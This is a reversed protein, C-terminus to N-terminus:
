LSYAATNTTNYLTKSNIATPRELKNKTRFVIPIRNRNSVFAYKIYVAWLYHYADLWEAM